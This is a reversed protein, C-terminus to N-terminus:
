VLVLAHANREVRLGRRDPNAAMERVLV